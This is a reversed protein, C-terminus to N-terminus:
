WERGLGLAQTMFHLIEAEVGAVDKSKIYSGLVHNGTEPMSKEFKLSPPTGLQQIMTKMADVRVVSDQHVEDKYYYLTLVPQQIKKFTEETMATELLHQLQVAAEIRYKGYWYQRYIDREDKSYIYDSGLVKRAIQLGWPNNLLWSKSDNIAINPSLLVLAHVEPFQAALMLALTGGTSTGVLIVREGLQRGIAYAEKASEWYRDITFNALAEGTDIGHEALRPLYLNYGFHRAIDRHVPEGEAQSASFGHLYVIAFPTKQKKKNDAWVIRAENDPKLKHLSEISNVYGELEDPHPPVKPLEKTLVPASPSPGLFYTALLIVPIGFLWKRRM